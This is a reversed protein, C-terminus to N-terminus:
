FNPLVHFVKKRLKFILSCFGVDSVHPQSSNFELLWEGHTWFKDKCFSLYAQLGGQLLIRTLHSWLFTAILSVLWAPFDGLSCKALINNRPFCTIKKRDIDKSNRSFSRRFLLCWCRDRHYKMGTRKYDWKLDVVFQSSGSLSTMLKQHMEIKSWGVLIEGNPNDESLEAQLWVWSVNLIVSEWDAVRTGM